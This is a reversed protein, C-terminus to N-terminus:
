QKKSKKSTTQANMEDKISEQVTADIEMINYFEENSYSRTKDFASSELMRQLIGTASMKDEGGLIYFLYHSLDSEIFSRYFDIENAPIIAGTAKSTHPCNRYQGVYVKKWDKFVGGNIVIVWSDDTLEDGRIDETFPMVNEGTNFCRDLVQISIKTIKFPVPKNKVITTTFNDISNEYVIETKQTLSTNKIGLWGVIPISVMTFYNNLSPWIHTITLHELLKNLKFGNTGFRGGGFLGAPNAVGIVGNPKLLKTIAPDVFEWWFDGQKNKSQVTTEEDDKKGPADKQYAPNLLMLDFEMNHAKIFNDTTCDGCTINENPINLDFEQNLRRFVAVWSPDIDNYYCNKGPIDVGDDAIATIAGILLAGSGACVDAVVPVSHPNHKKWEQWSKKGFMTAFESGGAYFSTTKDQLEKDRFMDLKQWITPTTLHIKNIWRDVIVFDIQDPDNIWTPFYEIGAGFLNLIIKDNNIIAHEVFKVADHRSHLDESYCVKRLCALHRKKMNRWSKKQQNIVDGVAPNLPTVTRSVTETNKAGDNGNKNLDIKETRRGTTDKFNLDFDDPPTSDKICENIGWLGGRALSELASQLDPMDMADWRGNCVTMFNYCQLVDKIIEVLSKSPNSIQEVTVAVNIAAELDGIFVGANTKDSFARVVRGTSQEFFKISDGLKRLMLITGWEPINTGVMNKRCTFTITPQSNTTIFEKIESLNDEYAGFVKVNPLYPKLLKVLANIYTEASVGDRGTPLGILKHRKALECLTSISDINLPDTDGFPDPAGLLRTYVRILIDEYRFKKNEPDYNHLKEWTMGKIEEWRPDDKMEEIIDSLVLRYYNIDPFKQYAPDGLQKLRYLQTRTFLVRNSDDFFLVGRDQNYIFDQPTGTIPLLFKADLGAIRKWLKNEDQSLFQHAEGIALIGLRTELTQYRIGINGDSDKESKLGIDVFSGLLLAVTDQDHNPIDAVSNIETVNDEWWMKARNTLKKFYGDSFAKTVYVKFKSFDAYWSDSFTMGMVSSLEEILELATDPITAFAGHITTKDFLYGLGLEHIMLIAALTGAEKGAGTTAAILFRALSRKLKKKGKRLKVNLTVIRILKERMDETWPRANYEELTTYFEGKQIRQHAQDWEYALLSVWNGLNKEIYEKPIPHLELSKQGRHNEEVKRKLPMYPRIKGDYGRKYNIDVLTPDFMPNRKIADETMDWVGLVMDETLLGRIKGVTQSAAYDLAEDRTVCRHDGDKVYWSTIQTNPDTISVIVAYKWLRYMSQVAKSILTLPSRSSDALKM